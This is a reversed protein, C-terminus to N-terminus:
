RGLGVGGSGLGVWDSVWLLSGRQQAQQLPRCRWISHLRVVAGNNLLCAERGWQCGGDPGLLGRRSGISHMQGESLIGSQM